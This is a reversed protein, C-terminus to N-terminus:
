RDKSLRWAVNIGIKVGLGGPGAELDSGTQAMTTIKTADRITSAPMPKMTYKLYGSYPKPIEGIKTVKYRKFSM